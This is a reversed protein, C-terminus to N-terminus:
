DEELEMLADEGKKLLGPLREANKMSQDRDKSKNDDGEPSDGSMKKSYSMEQKVMDDYRQQENKVKNLADIIDKARKAAIAAELEDELSKMTDPDPM